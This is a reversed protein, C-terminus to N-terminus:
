EHQWRLIVDLVHFGLSCLLLLLIVSKPGSSVAVMLAAILSGGAMNTALLGTPKVGRKYVLWYVTLVVCELCIALCLYLFLEGSSLMQFISDLLDNM